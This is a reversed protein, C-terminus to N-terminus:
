RGSLDKRLGTKYYATLKRIDASAVMGVECVKVNHEVPYVKCLNIRSKEDLKEAQNVPNIRIPDKTLYIEDLLPRPAVDSTYAITHEGQKLGIKAAGQGGNTSIQRTATLESREDSQNEPSNCAIQIGESPSQGLWSLGSFRRMSANGLDLQLPTPRKLHQM